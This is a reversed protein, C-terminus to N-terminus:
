AAVKTEIEPTPINEPPAFKNLEKQVFYPTLFGVFMTMAFWLITNNDKKVHHSFGECYKYSWYIGAFPILCIWATPISGGLANIDRKSKIMWVLSYVGLTIFGLFYVM